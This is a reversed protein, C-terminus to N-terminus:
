QRLQTFAISLTFLCCSLFFNNRFIVMFILQYFIASWAFCLFIFTAFIKFYVFFSFFFRLKNPLKLTCYISDNYPFVLASKICIFIYSPTHLHSLHRLQHLYIDYIMQFSVCKCIFVKTNNKYENIHPHQGRAM